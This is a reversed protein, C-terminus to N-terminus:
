HQVIWPLRLGSQECVFWGFGLVVGLIHAGTATGPSPPSYGVFEAISRLVFLLGISALLLNLSARRLDPSEKQTRHFFNRLQVVTFYSWLANTIGSAGVGLGGFGLIAPILNTAYGTLLVGALFTASAIRREMWVGLLLFVAANELAHLHTSHLWPTFALYAETPLSSAVSFAAGSRLSGALLLQGCYTTGILLLIGVTVPYERIREGM